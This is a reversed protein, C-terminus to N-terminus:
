DGDASANVINLTNFMVDYPRANSNDPKEIHIEARQTKAAVRDEQCTSKVMDCQPAEGSEWVEVYIM